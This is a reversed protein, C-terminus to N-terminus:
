DKLNKVTSAGLTGATKLVLQIHLSMEGVIKIGSLGNRVAGFGKFPYFLGHDFTDM